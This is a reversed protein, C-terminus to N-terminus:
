GPSIQAQEDMQAVVTEIDDIQEQTHHRAFAAQRAITDMLDRYLELTHKLRRYADITEDAPPEPEPASLLSIVMYQGPRDEPGSAAWSEKAGVRIHRWVYGDQVRAEDTVSGGHEGPALTFLVAHAKGPAARVNLFPRAEAQVQLRAAQWGAVPEEEKHEAYYATNYAATRELIAPEHMRYSGWRGSITYGTIGYLKEPRRLRSYVNVLCWRIQGV